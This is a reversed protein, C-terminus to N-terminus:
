GLYNYICENYNEESFLHALRCLVRVGLSKFGSAEKLLSAVEICEGSSCINSECEYNNQCSAWNGKSGFTRQEKPNGDISCYFAKSQDLNESEEGLFRYGYPLCTNKLVCGLCTVGLGDDDVIDVPDDIPEIIETGEALCAGDFCGNPCNYGNVNVYDENDDIGSACFYEAIGSSISFWREDNEEICYDEVESYIRESPYSDWLIGKTEGKINIDNGGDSDTCTPTTQTATTVPNCWEKKLTIIEENNDDIFSVLYTRGDIIIEGVGESTFIAQYTIGSSNDIFKVRDKTIDGGTHNYADMIQFTMDTDENEIRFFDDRKLGTVELNQESATCSLTPINTPEPTTGEICAGDQCGNPCYYNDYYSPPNDCFYETVFNSDM